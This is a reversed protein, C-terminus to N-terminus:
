SSSEEKNTYIGKRNFVTTITKVIIKLDLLFSINEIYYVDYKKKKELEISNRFYAQTYGTIGPKVRFKMKYVEDYTHENGLPSPRPGVLSMDGKLVNILQPLEDISTKRLIRGIRTQRYDQSSNYTSGDVNRLDPANVFMSRFKIMKYVKQHQGLRKGCYFIPGKDELKILIGVIAIILLLVPMFILSIATDIFRKVFKKYM